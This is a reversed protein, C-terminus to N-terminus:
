YGFLKSFFCWWLETLAQLKKELLHM